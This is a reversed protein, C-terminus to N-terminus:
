SGAVAVGWFGAKEKSWTRVMQKRARAWVSTLMGMQAVEREGSGSPKPRTTMANCFEQVPLVCQAEAEQLLATLESWGEEPMERLEQPSFCDAGLGTNSRISLAAQKVAAVRLAPELSANERAEERIAARNTPSQQSGGAVQQELGQGVQGAQGAHPRWPVGHM